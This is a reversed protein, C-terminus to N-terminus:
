TREKDFRYNFVTVSLFVKADRLLEPHYIPDNVFPLELEVENSNGIDFVYNSEKSVFDQLEEVFTEVKDELEVNPTHASVSIAIQYTLLESTRDQEDGEKAVYSVAVEPVGETLDAKKVVPLRRRAINFEDVSWTEGSGDITSVITEAIDKGIGM